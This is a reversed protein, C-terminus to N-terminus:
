EDGEEYLRARLAMLYPDDSGDIEMQQAIIADAVQQTEEVRSAEVLDRMLERWMGHERGHVELLIDLSREVQSQADQLRNLRMLALGYRWRIIAVDHHVGFRQEDMEIAQEFCEIAGEADGRLSLIDGLIQLGTAVNQHTPGYVRAMIDNAQRVLAEAEDLNGVDAELSALNGMTYALGVSEDGNAEREHVMATHYWRRSDDTNGLMANANAVGEAMASQLSPKPDAVSSMERYAQEFDALAAELDWEHFKVVGRQYHAAARLRKASEDGDEAQNEDLIALAEDILAFARPYESAARATGAAQVLTEALRYPEDKLHERQLTVAQTYHADAKDIEGLSQYASAIAAEVVARVDPREKLETEVERSAADLMERVTLEEGETELPDNSGLMRDLFEIVADQREVELVAADRAQGALLYLPTIVGIAGVMVVAVMFASAVLATHRKAFKQMQYIASPPRAIIPEDDLYRRIDSALDFATQYRRHAEKALAKGVITELDGRFQRNITGLLTPPDDRIIQLAEPIPKNKIAHPLQGALLEYLIVGLSYVDTRTDLQSPDAATQEPSMYSLTGMLQGVTTQMTAAAVDADTIRAIGFDIVKPAANAPGSGSEVLINAPKLDRHIVGNAHAHQVAICVKEFLSLRDNVSLRHTDAFQTISAAGPVLEMAIFPITRGSREVVGAEYVQAIAPHRLRALAQSEYDFRRRADDSVLDARMIKLAVLRRPKSQEAEYVTGMGGESIVKVIRYPGLSEDPSLRMAETLIESASAGFLTVPADTAEPGARTEDWSDPVQERADLLRNVASRIEGDGKCVKSLFADRMDVDTITAAEGFIRKIERYREPPITEAM